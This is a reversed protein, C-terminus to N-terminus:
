IKMPSVYEIDKNFLGKVIKKIAMGWAANTHNCEKDIVQLYYHLNINTYDPKVLRDIEKFTDYIIAKEGESFMPQLEMEKSGDNKKREVMQKWYENSKLDKYVTWEMETEPPIIIM